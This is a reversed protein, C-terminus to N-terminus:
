EMKYDHKKIASLLIQFSEEITKEGSFTDVNSETILRINEKIGEGTPMLKYYRAYKLEPEDMMQMNKKQSEKFLKIKMVLVSIVDSLKGKKGLDKFMSKMSDDEENKGEFKLMNKAIQWKMKAKTSKKTSLSPSFSKAIKPVFRPSSAKPTNPAISDPSLYDSSKVWADKIGSHIASKRHTYNQHSTRKDINRLIFKKKLEEILMEPEKITRRSTSLARGLPGKNVIKKKFLKKMASFDYASESMGLSELIKKNRDPDQIALYIERVIEKPHSFYNYREIFRDINVSHKKMLSEMAAKFGLESIKHDFVDTEESKYVSFLQDSNIFKQLRGKRIYNNIERLYFLKTDMEDHEEPYENLLLFESPIKTKKKFPNWNSEENRATKPPPPDTLDGILCGNELDNQQQIFKLVGRNRKKYYHFASKYTESISYKKIESHIAKDNEVEVKDLNSEPRNKLIKPTNVPSYASSVRNLIKNKIKQDEEDICHNKLDLKKVMEVFRKSKEQNELLDAKRQESEDLKQDQQPMKDFNVNDINKVIHNLFARTFSSYSKGESKKPAYATQSTKSRAPSKTITSSLFNQSEKNEEKKLFPTVLIRPKKHGLSGNITSRQRTSNRSITLSSQKVMESFSGLPQIKATSFRDDSNKKILNLDANKSKSIPLSVKQGIMRIHKKSKKKRMQFPKSPTRPVVIKLSPIALMETRIKEIYPEILDLMGNIVGTRIKDDVQGMSNMNVGAIVDVLYADLSKDLVFQFTFIQVYKHKLKIENMYCCISLLTIAIKKCFDSFLKQFLVEPDDKERLNCLYNLFKRFSVKESFKSLTDPLDIILDLMPEGFVYADEFNCKNVMVFMSIRCFSNNYKYIDKLVNINCDTDYDQPPNPIYTTDTLLKTPTKFNSLYFPHIKPSSEKTQDKNKYSSKQFNLIKLIAGQIFDSELIQSIKPIYNIVIFKDLIEKENFKSNKAWLLDCKESTNFSVQQQIWKERKELIEYFLQGTSFAKYTFKTYICKEIEM